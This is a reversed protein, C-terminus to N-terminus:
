NNEKKLQVMIKEEVIFLLEEGSCVVLEDGIVETTLEELSHYRFKHCKIYGHIDDLTLDWDDVIGRDNYKAIITTIESLLINDKYIKIQFQREM